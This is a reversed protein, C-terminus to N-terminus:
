KLYWVLSFDALQNGLINMVFSDDSQDQSNYNGFIGFASLFGVNVSFYNSFFHEIGLGYLFSMCWTGDYYSPSHDGYKNHSSIYTYNTGARICLNSKEYRLPKFDGLLSVNLFDDMYKNTTTYETYNCTVYTYDPVEREETARYYGLSPELTLFNNVGIKMTSFTIIPTGWIKIGMGFKGKTDYGFTSGVIFM